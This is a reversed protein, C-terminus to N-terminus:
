KQSLISVDNGGERKKEKVGMYQGQDRELEYGEKGWKNNIVHM